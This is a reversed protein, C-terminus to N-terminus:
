APELARAVMIGIQSRNGALYEALTKETIQVRHGVNPAHMLHLRNGQWLAIGTHAIDLGPINCTIAILDGSRIASSHRDIEAKPIHYLARGSIEVEQKRIITIFEPHKKLKPYSDVNTSM